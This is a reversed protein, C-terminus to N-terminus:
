EEMQEAFTAEGDAASVIVPLCPLTMALVLLFVLLKSITHKKM